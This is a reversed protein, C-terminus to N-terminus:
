QLFFIMQTISYNDPDGSVKKLLPSALSQQHTQASRATQHKPNQKQPRQLFCRDTLLLCGLVEEQQEEQQGFGSCGTSWVLCQWTLAHMQTVSHLSAHIVMGKIPLRGEQVKLSGTAPRGGARGVADISGLYVVGERPNAVAGEGEREELASDDLRCLSGVVVEAVERVTPSVAPSSKKIWM